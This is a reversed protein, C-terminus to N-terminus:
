SRSVRSAWSRASCAAAPGGGVGPRPQAVDQDPVQGGVAFPRKELSVLGGDGGAGEAGVALEVGRPAEVLGHFEPVQLGFFTQERQAAVLVRDPVDGEA